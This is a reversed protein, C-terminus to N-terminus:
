HAWAHELARRDKTARFGQIPTRPLDGESDSTDEIVNGTFRRQWGDRYFNLWRYWASELVGWDRWTIRSAVCEPNSLQWTRSVPVFSDEDEDEESSYMESREEDSQPSVASLSSVNIALGYGCANEQM